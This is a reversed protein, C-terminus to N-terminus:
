PPKAKRDATTASSRISMAGTLVVKRQGFATIYQAFEQRRREKTAWTLRVNYAALVPEMEASDLALLTHGEFTRDIKRGEIGIVLAAHLATRLAQRWTVIVPRGRLVERQSFQLVNAHSGEFRAPRLGWNLERILTGLEDLSIGTHWFPMARRVYEAEHGNRRSLARLPNTMGGHMAIAMAGAHLACSSDFSSQFSFAPINSGVFTLRRGSQLAPHLIQM